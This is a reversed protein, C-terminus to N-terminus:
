GSSIARAEGSSPGSRTASSPTPSCAPHNSEPFYEEGALFRLLRYLAPCPQAHSRGPGRRYAPRGAAAGCDAARGRCPAGAGRCLRVGDTVATALANGHEGVRNAAFDTVDRYRATCHPSLPRVVRGRGTGANDSLADCGPRGQAPSCRGPSLCNKCRRRFAGLQSIPRLVRGDRTGLLGVIVLSFAWRMFNRGSCSRTTTLRMSSSCFVLPPIMMGSVALSFGMCPSIRATPGPVRSSSPSSIGSPTATPSRTRNPLHDPVSTLSSPSSSRIM